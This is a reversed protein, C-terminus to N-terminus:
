QITPACDGGELTDRQDCAAALSDATADLVELLADLKKALRVVTHPEFQPPVSGDRARSSSHVACSVPELAEIENVLATFEALSAVGECKFTDEWRVAKVIQSVLQALWRLSHTEYLSIPDTPSPLFNSGESVLSKLHLEISQGYLLLVPCADWATKPDPKLSLTEVLIKAARHLSRAYLYIEIDGGNHWCRDAVRERTKAIPLRRVSPKRNM